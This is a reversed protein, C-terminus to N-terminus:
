AAEIVRLRGQRPKRSTPKVVIEVDRGLATLWSALRDITVSEMRGRFVKSLTPQDTGCLQAAAVQTLGRRAITNKIAIILSSKATLEAAEAPTFGIDALVNGLSKEFFTKAMILEGCGVGTRAAFAPRDIKRGAEASRDRIQIKKMFVHLVYLAKTLNVVYVARYANRDFSERLEYVGSGFQPLPKTDLPNKGQQLEYLRFGFSAKVERPLESLNAKSGAVWVILRVSLPDSKKPEAAHSPRDPRTM